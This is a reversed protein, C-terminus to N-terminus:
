FTWPLAQMITGDSNSGGAGRASPGAEVWALTAATRLAGAPVEGVVISAQGPATPLLTMLAQGNRGQFPAQRPQLARGVGCIGDWARGSPLTAEEILVFSQESTYRPGFRIMDRALLGALRFSDHAMQATQLRDTGSAGKKFEPTYTSSQDVSFLQGGRCGQCRSSPIWLGSSRFDLLCRLQQEPTGISITVVLEHKVFKATGPIKPWGTGAFTTDSLAPVQLTTTAITALKPVTPPKGVAITSTTTTATVRESGTTTTTDVSRTQTTPNSGEHTNIAPTATAHPLAFSGSKMALEKSVNRSAANCCGHFVGDLTPCCDGLLGRCRPSAGCARLRFGPGIRGVAVDVHKTSSKLLNRAAPRGPDQMSAYTYFARRPTGDIRVLGWFEENFVRDPFPGGGPSVGGVNHEKPSGSGDKWWEDALEFVLGGSCVGGHHQVSNTAIERTLSETAKAQAEENVAHNWTDFADAGFEALFMPKGARSAWEKFINGFSLGTYATLGWVDVAGLADIQDVPPMAGYVTAVPRSPDLHKLLAAVKNVRTLV